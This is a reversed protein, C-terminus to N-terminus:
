LLESLKDMAEEFGQIAIDTNDLIDGYKEALARLEDRNAAIKKIIKDARRKFDKLDTKTVSM